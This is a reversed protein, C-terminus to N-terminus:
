ENTNEANERDEIDNVPENELADTGDENIGLLAEFNTIIKENRNKIVDLLGNQNELEIIKTKNLFHESSIDDNAEKLQDITSYLAHLAANTKDQIKMMPTVTKKNRRKM